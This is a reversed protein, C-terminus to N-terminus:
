EFPITYIILFLCIYKERQIMEKLHNIYYINLHELWMLVNNANLLSKAISLPIDILFSRRFPFLASEASLLRPSSVCSVVEVRSSSSFWYENWKLV